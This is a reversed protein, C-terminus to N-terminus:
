KELLLRCVLHSNTVPTRVHARGIEDRCPRPDCGLTPSRRPPRPDSEPTRRACGRCRAPSLATSLQTCLEGGRVPAVCSSSQSAGHVPWRPFVGLSTPGSASRCLM